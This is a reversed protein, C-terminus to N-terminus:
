AATIRARATVDQPTMLYLADIFAVQFSGPGKALEGAMEGAVAYSALAAVTAELPPQGAAFAAVVGTLSCGLVTIRPMLAHGGAIRFAASGDTVYDVEGTVAVVGGTQRALAGAAGEADSVTNATDAGRGAAEAGALAIIESANGRIIGPRLALLRAGADRRLATAGVAVPDLVWPKGQGAMARAALEMSTVWYPDLTGLNVSLADALGAFEAVEEHAHNMAPSAGIALLINAMVNMAVYNTINQVLPARARMAALYQGANEM